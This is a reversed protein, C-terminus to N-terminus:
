ERPNLTNARLAFLACRHTVAYAISPPRPIKEIASRVNCASKSSTGGLVQFPILSYRLFNNITSAFPNSGEVEANRVGREGLQAVRGWLVTVRILHYPAQWPGGKM